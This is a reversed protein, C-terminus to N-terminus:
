APWSTRSAPTSRAPPTSIPPREPPQGQSPAQSAARALPGPSFGAAAALGFAVLALLARRRGATGHTIPQLSRKAMQEETAADNAVALRM